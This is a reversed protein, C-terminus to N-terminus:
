YVQVQWTCNPQRQATGGLSIAASDMGDHEVITELSPCVLCTLRWPLSLSEGPLTELKQYSFRNLTCEHSAIVINPRYHLLMCACVGFVVSLLCLM